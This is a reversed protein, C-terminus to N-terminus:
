EEKTKDKFYNKINNLTDGSLKEYKDKNKEDNESKNWNSGLNKLKDLVEDVNGEGKVKFYQEPENGKDPKNLLAGSIKIYQEDELNPKNTSDGKIKIYELSTYPQEGSEKDKEKPKNKIKTGSTKIKELVDNINKNPPLKIVFLDNSEDEPKNTMNGKVKNYIDKM